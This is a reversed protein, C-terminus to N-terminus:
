GALGFCEILHLPVNFAAYLEYMESPKPAKTIVFGATFKGIVYFLRTYRLGILIQKNNNNRNQLHM